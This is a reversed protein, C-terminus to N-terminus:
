PESEERENSLIKAIARRDRSTRRPGGAYGGDGAFSSQQRPRDGLSCSRYLIAQRLLEKAKIDSAKM